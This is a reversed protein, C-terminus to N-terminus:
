QISCPARPPARMAGAIAHALADLLAQDARVIDAANGSTQEVLDSQCRLDLPETAGSRMLRWEARLYVVRGSAEWERIDVHVVTVGTSTRVPDAPEDHLARGLDAAIARRAEDRLPGAWNDNEFIALEGASKRVVLEKRDMARPIEVGDLVFDETPRGTTASSVPVTPPGVLTYTHVTTSRCGSLACGIAVMALIQRAATM